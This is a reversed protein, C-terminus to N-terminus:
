EYDEEYCYEEMAREYQNEIMVNYAIGLIFIFLWGGIIYLM